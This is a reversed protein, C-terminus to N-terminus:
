VEIRCDCHCGMDASGRVMLCAPYHWYLEADVHCHAATQSHFNLRGIHTLSFLLEATLGDFVIFHYARHHLEAVKVPEVARIVVVADSGQHVAALILFLGHEVPPFRQSEAIFVKRYHLHVSQIRVLIVSDLFQM